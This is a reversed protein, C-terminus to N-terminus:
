LRDIWKGVEALIQEFTPTDGYDLASNEAFAKAYSSRTEPDAL